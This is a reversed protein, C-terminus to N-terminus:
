EFLITKNGHVIVRDEVFCRVARSLVLRELDKGKRVMDEVSDRHTIRTIDQGIIPGADLEATAFHATAGIIKV